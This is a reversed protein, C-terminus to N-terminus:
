IRLAADAGTEGFVLELGLLKRNETLQYCRRNHEAASLLSNGALRRPSPVTPAKRERFRCNAILEVEKFASDFAITARRFDWSKRSCKESREM